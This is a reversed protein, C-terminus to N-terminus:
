VGRQGYSEDVYGAALGAGQELLISFGKKILAEAHNPILAVRDEGPHTEKIVGIIM